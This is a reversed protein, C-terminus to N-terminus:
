STDAADADDRDQRSNASDARDARLPGAFTALPGAAWPYVPRTVIRPISVSGIGTASTTLVATPWLWRVSGTRGRVPPGAPCARRVAHSPTSRSTAKM